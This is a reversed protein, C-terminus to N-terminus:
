RIRIESPKQEGIDCSTRREVGKHVGHTMCVDHGILDRKNM